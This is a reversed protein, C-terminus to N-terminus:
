LNDSALGPICKNNTLVLAAELSQLLVSQIFFRTCTDSKYSLLQCSQQCFFFSDVFKIYVHLSYANLASEYLIM